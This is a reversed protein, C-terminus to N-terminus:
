ALLKQFFKLLRKSIAFPIARARKVSTSYNHENLAMHCNRNQKISLFNCLISQDHQIMLVAKSLWKLPKLPRMHNFSLSSPIPSPKRGGGKSLISLDWQARLPEGFARLLCYLQELHGAWEKCCLLLSFAMHHRTDNNPTRLSAHAYDPLSSPPDELPDQISPDIISIGGVRGWM